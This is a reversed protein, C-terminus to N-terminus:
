LTTAFTEFNNLKSNSLVSIAEQLKKFSNIVNDKVNIDNVARNIQVAKKRISELIDNLSDFNNVKGIGEIETALILVSESLNQIDKTSEGLDIHISESLKANQIAEIRSLIGSLNDYILEINSLM